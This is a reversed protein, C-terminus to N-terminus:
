KFTRGLETLLSAIYDRRHPLLENEMAEIFDSPHSPGWTDWEYAAAALYGAPVAEPDLSLRVKESAISRVDEPVAGVERLFEFAPFTAGWGPQESLRRLHSLSLSVNVWNATSM